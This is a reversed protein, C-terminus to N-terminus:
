HGRAADSRLGLLWQNLGIALQPKGIEGDSSQYDFRVVVEMNRRARRGIDSMLRFTKPNGAVITM